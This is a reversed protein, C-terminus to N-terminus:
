PSLAKDIVIFHLDDRLPRGFREDGYPFPKTQGTPRYGRRGYFAILETRSHIVTMAVADCGAARARREVEAILLRGLGQGQHAPSVTLMALHCVLREADDRFTQMLVCALIPGTAQERLLLITSPDPAALEDALSAPDTRQGDLLDSENTWGQRASAGRYASNVVAALPELDDRTAATIIFDTM